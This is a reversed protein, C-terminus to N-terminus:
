IKREEREEENTDIEKGTYAPKAAFASPTVRTNVNGHPRDGRICGEHKRLPDKGIRKEQAPAKTLGGVGSIGAKRRTTNKETITGKGLESCDGEARQYIRKQRSEFSEEEGSIRARYKCADGKM